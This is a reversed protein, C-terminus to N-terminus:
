LMWEELIAGPKEWPTVLLADPRRTVLMGAGPGEGVQADAAAFGSVLALKCRSQTQALRAPSMYSKVPAPPPPLEEWFKHDLDTLEPRMLAAPLATNSSPLWLSSRTDSPGWHSDGAETLRGCLFLHLYTWFFGQSFYRLFRDQLQCNRALCM